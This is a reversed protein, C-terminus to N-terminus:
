KVIGLNKAYQCGPEYCLEWKVYAYTKTILRGGCKPCPNDYIENKKRGKLDIGNKNAINQVSGTTCECLIAIASTSHATTRLLMLIDDKQIQSLEKRTRKTKNITM